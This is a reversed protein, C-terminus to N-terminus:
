LMMKLSCLVVFIFVKLWAAGNKKMAEHESCFRSFLDFPFDAPISALKILISFNGEMLWNWNKKDRLEEEEEKWEDLGRIFALSSGVEGRRTKGQRKQRQQSLLFLFYFHQCAHEQREMESEKWQPLWDNDFHLLLIINSRRSQPNKSKKAGWQIPQNLTSSLGIFFSFLSLINCSHQILLNLSCGLM